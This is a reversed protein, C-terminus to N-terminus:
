PLPLLLDSLFLSYHTIHETSYKPKKLSLSLARIYLGAHVYSLLCRLLSSTPSMCSTVMNGPLVHEKKKRKLVVDQPIPSKHLPYNKFSYPSNMTHAHTILPKPWEHCHTSNSHHEHSWITSLILCPGSVYM